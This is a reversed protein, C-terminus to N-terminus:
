DGFACALVSIITPSYVDCEPFGDHLTSGLIVVIVVDAGTRDVFPITGQSLHLQPVTFLGLM